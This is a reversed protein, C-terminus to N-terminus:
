EVLKNILQDIANILKDMWQKYVNGHLEIIKQVEEKKGSQLANLLKNVSEDGTLNPLLNEEIKEM